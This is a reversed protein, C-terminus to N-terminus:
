FKNPCEKSRFHVHHLHLLGSSVDSNQHYHYCILKLSRSDFHWFLYFRHIVLDLFLFVMAVEDKVDLIFFGNGHLFNTCNDRRLIIWFEITKISKWYTSTIRGILFKQVLNHGTSRFIATITQKVKLVLMLTLSGRFFGHLFFQKQHRPTGVCSANLFFHEVRWTKIGEFFTKNTYLFIYLYTLNYLNAFFRLIDRFAFFEHFNTSMRALCQLDWKLKVFKKEAFFKIIRIECQNSIKVSKWM